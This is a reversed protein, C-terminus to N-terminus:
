IKNEKINKMMSGFILFNNKKVNKKRERSNKTNWVSGLPGIFSEHLPLTAM